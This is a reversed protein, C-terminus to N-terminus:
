RATRAVWAKVQAELLPLSVAGRTLVADHFGKLSFKDGLEGQAWARLRRIELQGVKYALAQGPWNIYRDVENDINNPALPTNENMFSVARERSWGMAHLGTDVVLRAARWTDYSLMGMRDLDGSYLGMEDALRETYLGWGEVFATFGSHKRFAPVEPLEQAIAIQLHHGPISEHYALAEAEFRPRTEPQYVNIYYEGPKSGDAHPQSYYAITTFPAEYDPIRTVVCDAKPLVGFSAAMKAKAAALSTKAKEEVEAATEFRLKPDTRLRKMIAALDDTGFLKKGLVRMEAHIRALEDLGLQHLEAPKRDVGLQYRASAEYCAAGDTMAGVGAKDGSRARPQIEVLAERYRQLAPRIGQDITEELSRAAVAQAAPDPLISLKAKVESLIPWEAAPKALQGDLIVLVRRVTEANATRGAALGRRLNATVDDIRSAIKKVRELYSDVHAPKEIPHHEVIKNWEVAPNDSIGVAWTEEACVDTGQSATLLDRFLQLTEQDAPNLGHTSLLGAEELFADRAKRRAAYGAASRDQLETDFRRDGLETAWIPDAQMTWEWHRGLLDKLTADTVGAGGAVYAPAQTARVPVVPASTGGRCSVVAAVAVLLALRSM